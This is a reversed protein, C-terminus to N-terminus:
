LEFGFGLEVTLQQRLALDDAGLPYLLRYRAGLTLYTDGGDLEIGVAATGGAANYDHSRRTIVDSFGREEMSCIWPAGGTAFVASPGLSFAFRTGSEHDQSLEFTHTYGADLAIHTGIQHCQGGVAQSFEVRAVLGNGKEERLRLDASFTIVGNASAATGDDLADFGSGVGSALAVEVYPDTRREAFAHDAYALPLLVCGFGLAIARSSRNAM